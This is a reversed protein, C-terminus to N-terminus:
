LEWQLVVLSFKHPLCPNPHLSLISSDRSETIALLTASTNAVDANWTFAEASLM